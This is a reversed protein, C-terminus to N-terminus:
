LFVNIKNERKLSNIFHNDIKSELSNIIRSAKIYDAVYNELFERFTNNELVIKDILYGRLIAKEDRYSLSLENNIHIYGIIKTHRISNDHVGLVIKDVGKREFVDNIIDLLELNCNCM